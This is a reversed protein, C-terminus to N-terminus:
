GGHRRKLNDLFEKEADTLSGLGENHVKDIIRDMMKDFDDHRHLSAKRKPRMAKKIRSFIGPKGEIDFVQYRPGRLYHKIYLYGTLMGGFHAFAAIRGPTLSYIINIFILIYIATRARVPFFFFFIRRNPYLVAFAVLMGMVAGSAGLISIDDKINFLFQALGGVIGSLFYLKVFRKKGLSMEIDTGFFYLCLMNLLIHFPDFSHLFMHTFFQWIFGKHIVLAPNLAFLYSFYPIEARARSAILADVIQVFFVAFNIVILTKVASGIRPLGFRVHYQPAERFYDRDYIGM